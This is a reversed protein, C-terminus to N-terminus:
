QYPDEILLLREITALTTNDQNIGGVVYVYRNLYCASAHTRLTNMHQMEVWGDTKICYRWNENINLAKSKTLYCGGILFIFREKAATLCPAYRQRGPYRTM